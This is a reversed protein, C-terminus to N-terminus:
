RMYYQRALRAQRVILQRAWRLTIQTAEGVEGCAVEGLTAKGADSHAVEDLAVEGLVGCTAEDLAAEKAESAEDYAVFWM